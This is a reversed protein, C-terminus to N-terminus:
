TSYTILPLSSESFLLFKNLCEHERELHELSHWGSGRAEADESGGLAWGILPLRACLALRNIALDAQVARHM